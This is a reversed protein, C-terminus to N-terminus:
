AATDPLRKPTPSFDVQDTTVADDEFNSHVNRGLFALM